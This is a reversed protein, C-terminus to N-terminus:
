FTLFLLITVFFIINKLINILTDTKNKETLLTGTPLGYLFILSSEIMFLNLNKSALYFIVALITYVLPTKETKQLQIIAFAVVLLVIIYNVETYMLLAIFIILLIMKKVLILNKKGPKVEEKAIIALTFGMFLGLYAIVATLTYILLNM